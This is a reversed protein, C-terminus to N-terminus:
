PVHLDNRRLSSPVIRPSVLCATGGATRRRLGSHEAFAVVCSSRSATSANSAPLGIRTGTVSGIPQLTLHRPLSACQIGSLRASKRYCNVARSPRRAPPGNLTTAEHSSGIGIPYDVVAGVKEGGGAVVIAAVTSTATGGNGDTVTVTANCNGPVTYAHTVSAGAATTGDGFNWTCVSVAM